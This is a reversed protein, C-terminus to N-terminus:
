WGQSSIKSTCGNCALWGNALWYCASSYHHGINFNVVNLYTLRSDRLIACGCECPTGPCADAAWDQRVGSGQMIIGHANRGLTVSHGGALGELHPISVAPRSSHISDQLARETWMVSM